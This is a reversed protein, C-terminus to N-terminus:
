EIIFNIEGKIFHGDKSMARWQFLYKGSTLKPLGIFHKPSMKMLVDDEIIIKKNDSKSFLNSVITDKEEGSQKLLTVKVLKADSKFNMKIQEPAQSLIENNKPSISNLPSHAFVVTNKLIFVLTLLLIKM